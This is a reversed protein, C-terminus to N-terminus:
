EPYLKVSLVEKTTDEEEEKPGILNDIKKSHKRCNILDTIFAFAKTSTKSWRLFVENCFM